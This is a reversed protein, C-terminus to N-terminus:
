QRSEGKESNLAQGAGVGSHGGGGGFWLSSSWRSLGRFQKIIVAELTVALRRRIDSSRSGFVLRLDTTLVAMIPMWGCCPFDDREATLAMFTFRMELQGGAVTAVRIWMCREIDFEAVINSIGAYGTMSALNNFQAVIFALMRCEEAAGAVVSVAFNRCTSLAMLGVEGLLSGYVTFLTMLSM